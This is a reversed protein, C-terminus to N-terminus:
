RPEKKPAHAELLRVLEAMSSNDANSSSHQPPKESQRLLFQLIKMMDETFPHWNSLRTLRIRFMQEEPAM